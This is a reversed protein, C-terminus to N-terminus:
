EHEIKERIEMIVYGNDTKKMARDYLAIAKERDRDFCCDGEYKDFVGNEPFTKRAEKIYKLADDYKCREILLRIYLMNLSENRPFRKFLEETLMFAERFNGTSYMSIAKRIDSILKEAKHLEGAAEGRVSRRIDLLRSAKSIRGTHILVMAAIYLMDDDIDVFGPNRFRYIGLYDERGAYERSLQKSYYEDFLESLERYEGRAFMDRIDRGCEAVTAELDMKTGMCLAKVADDKTRSRKDMHRFFFKKRRILARRVKPVDIYRMYDDQITRYDTDMSFIADHSEQGEHPPIYTWEDGYHQTLYDASRDPIRCEIGEFTGWGSSGYMSKEFLFPVGGWRLVYYECDEESYSFMRQELESLVAEKGYKKMKRLYRSYRERNMQYRYSYNLFPNILDSYLMLDETYRRHAEEDPVPDLVIIDVVFGAIGDGLIQNNHIASSETDTYRGFMNPYDRDLEQCELVRNEPAEERFAEIFRLWNDRTMMIDMDDDWPIFGKHRLVGILTGGAMYYVIDYKMCIEHIEKFLSFLKKQEPTMTNREDRQDASPGSNQQKDM